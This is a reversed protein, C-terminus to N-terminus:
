RGGALTQEIRKLGAASDSDNPDLQRAILWEDRAKEYNANQFYKLGEVYHLQAALRNEETVGQPKAKAEELAGGKRKAEEAAKKSEEEETKRRAEEEKVRRAAEESRRRKEGAEISMQERARAVLKDLYSSNASYPRANNWEDMAATYRRASYLKKGSSIYSREIEGKVENLLKNAKSDGPQIELVQALGECAAKLKGQAYFELAAKLRDNAREQRLEDEIRTIWQVTVTDRPRIFLANYLNDLAGKLDRAKYAAEGEQFYYQKLDDKMRGLWYKAKINSPSLKEVEQMKKYAAIIRGENYFSLASKFRDEIMIKESMFARQGGRLQDAAELLMSADNFNPDISLIKAALDHAEEYSGQRYYAFANEYISELMKRQIKEKEIQVTGLFRKKEEFESLSGLGTKQLNLFLSEESKM